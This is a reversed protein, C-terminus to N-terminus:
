LRKPESVMLNRAQINSNAETESIGIKLCTISFYLHLQSSGSSAISSAVGAVSSIAGTSVVVSSYHFLRSLISLCVKKIGRYSLQYLLVRTIHLNDTRTRNSARVYSVNEIM